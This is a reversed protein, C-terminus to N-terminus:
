IRDDHEYSLIKNANMSRENVPCSIDRITQAYLRTLDDKGAPQKHKESFYKIKITLRNLIEDDYSLNLQKLCYAVASRGSHKGLVFNEETRGTMEAPILQYSSRDKLLCQAHIGSEHLFVHSGCVPKSPHIDRGSAEAVIQCLNYFNETRLGTNVGMSLEFAMVVEELAANGAREGLGNVTVSLSEAGAQFAAVANATAMGLDNHAHFELPLDPATERIQKVLTATSIPNLLGVTDALRVRSAGFLSAACAFEKLFGVDARSADQAGITVYGFMSLAYDALEYLNQMVWEPSKGMLKMLLPSVPFSIHVGDTGSEKAKLIDSKTARCWALTKFGFGLNCLTKIDEIEQQSMAPTGIELEPIRAADLGAAILIKDELSFVVGAAQEGDRLTTDIFYPRGGLDGLPPSGIGRLANISKM